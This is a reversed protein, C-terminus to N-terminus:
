PVQTCHMGFFGGAVGHLIRLDLISGDKGYRRKRGNYRKRDAQRPNITPLLNRKSPTLEIRKKYGELM